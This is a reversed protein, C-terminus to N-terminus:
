DKIVTLNTGHVDNYAVKARHAATVADWLVEAQPSCELHDVVGIMLDRLAVAMEFSMPFYNPSYGGGACARIVVGGKAIRALVQRDTDVDVGLINDDDSYHITSGIRIM